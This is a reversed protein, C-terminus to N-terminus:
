CANSKENGNRNVRVVITTCCCCQDEGATGSSLAFEAGRVFCRKRPTPCQSTKGIPKGMSFGTCSGEMRDNTYRSGNKTSPFLRISDFIRYAKWMSPVSKAGNVKWDQKKPDWMNQFLIPLLNQERIFGETFARSKLTAIATEEDGDRGIDIGTISALGGFQGAIAALGGTKNDKSVPAMLVDARYIPTALLAYTIAAGTVLLTVLMVPWKYRMLIRWLDAFKIEDEEFVPPIPVFYGQPPYVHTDIHGPEQKNM